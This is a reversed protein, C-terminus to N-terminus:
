KMVKRKSGDSYYQIVVGHYDTDKEIEQGLLTYSRLLMPLTKSEGEASGNLSTVFSLFQPYDLRAIVDEDLRSTRTFWLYQGNAFLNGNTKFLAPLAATVTDKAPTLVKIDATPSTRFFLYSKGTPSKYFFDESANSKCEFTLKGAAYSFYCNGMEWRGIRFLQQGDTKYAVQNYITSSNLKFGPAYTEFFYTNINEGDQVVFGNEYLVVVSRGDFM